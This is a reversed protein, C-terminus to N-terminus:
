KKVVEKTDLKRADLIYKLISLHPLARVPIPRIIKPPAWCDEEKPKIAQNTPTLSEEAAAGFTILPCLILPLLKNM